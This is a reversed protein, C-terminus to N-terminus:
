PTVARVYASTDVLGAAAAGAVTLLPQAGAGLVLSPVALALAPATLALRGRPPASGPPPTGRFVGSWIKIMSTLTILSVAVATAAALHEGAPVAARVLSLKAVFGSLPPLGALSLAALMFTTALLPDASAVGGLAGLRGTGRTTEVAGACALLAAKVLIYQALYFIAAALGFATFLALGLLIYGIQSVMHFVLISRMTDEGVAGLVGIVMTLLAATMIVWRVEPAGAFVVAYIRIIAYLGIKTLLGSFLVTVAPPACPYSRPLWGHLPVVATKVALALLVVAGAAAAAGSHRAAGALEGLNVSGTVAYLLGIGALLTTSAFLNVTVYVRGAAVRRAGGGMVLLAYSPVLMVEVFVFLNFLDATLLAGYMGASLLLVLPVFRPDADEGTAAAMALGALVLVASVCVMLASLVDAAFVIGHGAWGGVDQAPVAGDLTAALLAGGTLLAVVGAAAGTLRHLARRGPVALLLGAAPLALATPLVLAAGIM